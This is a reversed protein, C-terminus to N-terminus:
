LTGMEKNKGQLLGPERITEIGSTIRVSQLIQCKKYYNKNYKTITIKEM